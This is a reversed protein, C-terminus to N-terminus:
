NSKDMCFSQKCPKNFGTKQKFDGNLWCCCVSTSDAPLATLGPFVGGDGCLWMINGDKNKRYFIQTHNGVIVM